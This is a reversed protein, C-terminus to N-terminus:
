STGALVLNGEWKGKEGLLLFLLSDGRVSKLSNPNLNWYMFNMEGLLNERLIPLVHLNNCLFSKMWFAGPFPASILCWPGRHTTLASQPPQLLTEPTFTSGACHCRKKREREGEEGGRGVGHCESYKCCCVLQSDGVNCGESQPFGFAAGLSHNELRNEGHTFLELDAPILPCSLNWRRCQFPTSQM